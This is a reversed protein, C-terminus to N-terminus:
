VVEWPMRNVRALEKDQERKWKVYQPFMFNAVDPGIQPMACYREYTCPVCQGCWVIRSFKGCKVCVCLPDGEKAHVTNCVTCTNNSVPRIVEPEPGTAFNDRVPAAKYVVTKGDPGRLEVEDSMGGVDPPKTWFDSMIGERRGRKFGTDTKDYNWKMGVKKRAAKWKRIYQNRHKRCFAQLPLRFEQCGERRCEVSMNAWPGSHVTSPLSTKGNEKEM